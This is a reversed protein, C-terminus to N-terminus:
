IVWIWLYVFFVSENQIRCRRHAWFPTMWVLSVICLQILQFDRAILYIFSKFMKLNFTEKMCMWVFMVASNRYNKCSRVYITGSAMFRFMEYTEFLFQLLRCFYTHFSRAQELLGVSLILLGDALTFNHRQLSSFKIKDSFLNRVRKRKWQWWM